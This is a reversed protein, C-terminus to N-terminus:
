AAIEKPPEAEPPLDNLCKVDFERLLSRAARVRGVTADIGDRLRLLMAERQALQEDTAEGWSVRTGDGLAFTESLLLERDSRADLIAGKGPLVSPTFVQKEVHLTEARRVQCVANALAPTLVKSAKAPVGLDRMVAIAVSSDSLVADKELRGRILDYITRESM